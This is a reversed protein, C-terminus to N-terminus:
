TDVVITKITNDSFKIKLDGDAADIYITARDVLQDPIQVGDYISLVESEFADRIRQFEDYVYRKVDSDDVPAPNPEYKISEM